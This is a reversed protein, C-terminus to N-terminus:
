KSAEIENIYDQKDEGSKEFYKDICKLTHDEDDVSANYSAFAAASDADANYYAAYSAARTSPYISFASKENEMLQDISVSGKDDLWKMVLLIHKNM